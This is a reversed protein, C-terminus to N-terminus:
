QPVCTAQWELTDTGLRDLGVHADKTIYGSPCIGPSYTNNLRGSQPCCSPDAGVCGQYVAAQRQIHIITLSSCEPAPAFTTTLPVFGTSTQTQFQTVIATSAKACLLSFLLLYDVVSYAM